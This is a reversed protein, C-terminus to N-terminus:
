QLRVRAAPNRGDRLRGTWTGELEDNKFEFTYEGPKVNVPTGSKGILKGNHYIEVNPPNTTFFIIAEQAEEAAAKEAAAKRAAEERAAQERAAQDRAAQDRAAQERATQDRAAQDRAAQDRMAQQQAVQQQAAQQQAAQQQANTQTQQATQTTQQASAKRELNKTLKRETGNYEINWEFEAYGELQARFVVKGRPVSTARVPSTGLYENNMFIRAGGPNTLIQVPANQKQQPKPQQSKPQQPQTQKPQTQAVPPSVKTGEEKVAAQEQTEQVAPEESSVPQPPAVVAVPTQEIQESSIISTLNSPIIGTFIGASVVIILIVLSIFFVKVGNGKKSRKEDYYYSAGSADANKGTKSFVMAGPQPKPTNAPEYYAQQPKPSPSASSQPRSVEVNVPQQQQQSVNHPLDDLEFHVEEQPVFEV